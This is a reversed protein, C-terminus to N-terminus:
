NSSCFYFFFWFQVCNASGFLFLAEEVSCDDLLLTRGMGKVFLM